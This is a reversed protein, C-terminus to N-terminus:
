VLSLQADPTGSRRTRFSRTQNRLEEIRLSQNIVSAAETQTIFRNRRTGLSVLRPLALDTVINLVMDPKANLVLRMLRNTPDTSVALDENINFLVHASKFIEAVQEPSRIIISAEFMRETKRCADETLECILTNLWEPDDLDESSAESKIQSQLDLLDSNLRKFVLGNSLRLEMAAKLPSVDEQASTQHVSEPVVKVQPESTTLREVAGVLKTAVQACAVAKTAANTMLSLLQTSTRVTGFDAGSKLSDFGSNMADSALSTVVAINDPHSMDPSDRVIDLALSSLELCSYGGVRIAKIILVILTRLDPDDDLELITGQKVLQAVRSTIESVTRAQRVCDDASQILKMIRSTGNPAADEAPNYTSAPKATERINSTRDVSSTEKQERDAENGENINKKSLGRKELIKEYADTLQQFLETDGGKDPHLQMALNKYARKVEADSVSPDLGLVSYINTDQLSALISLYDSKLQMLSILYDEMRANIANLKDPPLEEVNVPASTQKAEKEALLFSDTIFPSASPKTRSVASLKRLLARSIELSVYMNMANFDPDPSSQSDSVTANWRANLRLRRFRTNIKAPDCEMSSTPVPLDFAAFAGAIVVPIPKSFRTEYITRSISISKSIAGAVSDIVPIASRATDHRTLRLSKTFEHAIWVALIAGSMEGNIWEFFKDGCSEQLQTTELESALSISAIQTM